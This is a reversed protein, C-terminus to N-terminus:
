ASKATEWFRTKKIGSGKAADGMATMASLIEILATTIAGQRTKNFIMMAADRLQAINTLQGEVAIIRAAHESLENEAAANLLALSRHFEYFDKVDTEDKDLLANAFRYNNLTSAETPEPAQATEMM